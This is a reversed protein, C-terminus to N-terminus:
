SDSRIRSANHERGADTDVIDTTERLEGRLAQLTEIIRRCQPCGTTTHKWTEKLQSVKLAKADEPSYKELETIDLFGDERIIGDCANFLAFVDVGSDSDHFEDNTDKPVPTRGRNESSLSSPWTSDCFFGAQNPGPPTKTFEQFMSLAAGQRTVLHHKLDLGPKSVRVSKSYESKRSEDTPTQSFYGLKGTSLSLLRVKVTKTSM